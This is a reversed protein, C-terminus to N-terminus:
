SQAPTSNRLPNLDVLFTAKASRQTERSVGAKRIRRVVVNMESHRARNRIRSDDTTGRVALSPGSALALRVM